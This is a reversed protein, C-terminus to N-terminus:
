EFVLLNHAITVSAVEIRPNPFIPGIAPSGTMYPFDRNNLSKPLTSTTGKQM